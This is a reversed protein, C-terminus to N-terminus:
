FKSGFFYWAIAAIALVVVSSISMGLVNQKGYKEDLVYPAASTSAKKEEPLMEMEPFINHKELQKLIDEPLSNLAGDAIEISYFSNAVTGQRKHIHYHPDKITEHAKEISEGDAMVHFPIRHAELIIVINKIESESYGTYLM